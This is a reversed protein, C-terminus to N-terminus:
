GRLGGRWEREGEREIHTDRVIEVMDVYDNNATGRATNTLGEREEQLLCFVDGVEGEVVDDVGGSDSCIERVDVGTRSNCAVTLIGHVLGELVCM